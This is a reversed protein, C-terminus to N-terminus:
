QEAKAIASRMAQVQATASLAPIGDLLKVAFKLHALLEPAAAILRADELRNGISAPCEAVLFGGSGDSSRATRVINSVSEWPGPTHQAQM